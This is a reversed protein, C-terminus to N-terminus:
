RIRAFKWGCKITVKSQKRLKKFNLAEYQALLKANEAKNALETEYAKLKEANQARSKAKEAEYAKKRKTKLKM